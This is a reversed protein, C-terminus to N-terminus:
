QRNFHNYILFHDFETSRVFVPISSLDVPTEVYQGGKYTQGTRFDTWDGDIKPLYTKWTTVGAETVPSVLFSPGFMFECDQKLAEEDDAFDFVLPRMM